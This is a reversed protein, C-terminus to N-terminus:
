CCCCCCCVAEVDIAVVVVGFDFSLHLLLLRRLFNQCTKDTESSGSVQESASFGFGGRDPSAREWDLVPVQTKM